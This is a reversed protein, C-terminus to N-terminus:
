VITIRQQEGDVLCIQSDTLCLVPFDEGWEPLSVQSEVRSIWEDTMHPFISIGGLLNMGAAQHWDQYTPRDPVVAPDDWQKWTATDIRAGAVIAGASKGCYVTTSSEGTLLSQLDKIKGSRALCYQLWFTNGGEVYIFHPNWQRLIDGGVFNNEEWHRLSGDDLDYTVISLPISLPLLRRLSEAIINRRKRADARARQRQIGPSSTSDRRYAYMATPIYLFRLTPIYPSQIQSQKGYSEELCSLLSSRLFEQAAESKQFGEDFSSLLIARRAQISSFKFENDQYKNPYWIKSSSEANKSSVWLSRQRCAQSPFSSYGFAHSRSIWSIALLPSLNRM